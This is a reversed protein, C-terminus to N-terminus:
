HCSVEGVNSNVTCIKNSVHVYCLFVSWIGKMAVSMQERNVMDTIGSDIAYEFNM